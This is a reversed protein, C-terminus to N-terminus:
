LWGGGAGAALVLAGGVLALGGRASVWARALVLWGIAAVVVAAWALPVVSLPLRDLLSGVDRPRAADGLDGTLPYQM